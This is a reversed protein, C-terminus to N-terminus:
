LGIEKLAAPNSFIMEEAEERSQRWADLDWIQFKEGNGVFVVNHELHAYARLPQPLLIRGQKDVECERAGGIYYQGFAQMLLDLQPRQRVRDELRIWARYPYGDLCHISKWRFNTVVLRDDNTATIEDRFKAPVSVRGKDDITHEFNGRFM